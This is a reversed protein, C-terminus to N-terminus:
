MIRHEQTIRGYSLGDSVDYDIRRENTETIVVLYTFDISDVSQTQVDRIPNRKM